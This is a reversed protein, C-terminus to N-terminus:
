EVMRRGRTIDEAMKSLLAYTHKGKLTFLASYTLYTRLCEGFYRFVYSPPSSLNLLNNNKNEKRLFLIFTHGCCQAREWYFDNM